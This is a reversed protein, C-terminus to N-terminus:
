QYKQQSLERWAGKCYSFVTQIIIPLCILFIKLQKAQIAYRLSTSIKGLFLFPITFRTRSLYSYSLSKSDRRINIFGSGRIKMKSLLKNKDTLGLHNIKMQPIFICRIGSNRLMGGFLTDFSSSVVQFGGTQEYIEKRIAFNGGAPLPFETRSNHENFGSFNLFYETWSILSQKNGNGISGTIVKEIELEKEITKLWGEQAECDSDLFALIKGKAIKVGEIRAASSGCHNLTIVVDAGMKKACEYTKDNSGDDVIIIEFQNKPYDQSTISKICGEITSESNYSPIIISIKPNKM